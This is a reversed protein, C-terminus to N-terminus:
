YWSGLPTFVLHHSALHSLPSWYCVGFPLRSSLNDKLCRSSSSSKSNSTCNFSRSSSSDQLSRSSSRNLLSSSLPLIIEEDRATMRSGNGNTSDVGNEGSKRGCESAGGGGNSTRRNEDRGGQCASGDKAKASDETSGENCGANNEEVITSVQFRISCSSSCDEVNIM